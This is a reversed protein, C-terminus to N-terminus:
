AHVFGHTFLWGIGFGALAAVLGISAIELGRRKWDGITLKASIAGGGFLLLTSGVLSVIVAGSRELFFFPLLAILCGLTSAIGVILASHLPKADGLPYLHLHEEMLMELWVKRDHTLEAVIRVADARSLGRRAYADILVERQLHPNEVILREQEARESEYYAISARTSTYAVAALSIAEALMSALGGAVLITKDATVAALGLMTGLENVLGDQGGLIWDHLDEALKHEREALPKGGPFPSPPDAAVSGDEPLIPLAYPHPEHAARAPAARRPKRLHHLPRAKLM